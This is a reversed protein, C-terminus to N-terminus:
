MFVTLGVMALIGLSYHIAKGRETQYLRSFDSERTQVDQNSNEVSYVKDALDRNECLAKKYCNMSLDSSTECDLIRLSECDSLAPTLNSQLFYLDNPRYDLSITTM